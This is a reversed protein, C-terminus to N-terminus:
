FVASVALTGGPTGAVPELTAQATGTVEYSEAGHGLGQYSATDLTVTCRGRAPEDRAATRAAWSPSSDGQRVITVECTFGPSTEDLTAGPQPKGPYQFRLQARWSPAQGAISLYSRVDSILYELPRAAGLATGQLPGAVAIVVQEFFGADGTPREPIAVDPIAVDDAAAADAPPLAAQDRGCAALCVLVSILRVTRKM